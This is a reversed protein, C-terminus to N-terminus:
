RRRSGWSRDRTSDRAAIGNTTRLASRVLNIRRARFTPAYVVLSSERRCRSGYASKYEADGVEHDLVHADPDSCLEALAHMFLYTAVGLHAYRPDHGPRGSFFRGRYLAGHEFAVPDGALSLVYGRYWGREMAFRTRARHSPTDGFSLCAGRRSTRGAVTGVDAFYPDIDAPDTYRRITLREGHEHELRRITRGISKRRPTSLSRLFDEFSPPLDLEWHADSDPRRGHAGRLPTATALQYFPSDIDVHRFIAVDAVGEVLALRVSLIVEAVSREDVRGLVGDPVITLSRVRPAYVTRSGLRVGLEVREIRGALLTSPKGDEEVVLVHPREVHPDQETVTAFFDPNSAIHAGGFALWSGRVSGLDAVTSLVRIRHHAATADLSMAPATSIAAVDM